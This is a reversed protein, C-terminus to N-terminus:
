HESQIMLVRAPIHSMTEDQVAQTTGSQEGNCALLHPKTRALV